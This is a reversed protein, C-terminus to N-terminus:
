SAAPHEAVWRELERRLAAADTTRVLALAQEIEALAAKRDKPWRAAALEFRARAQVLGPTNARLTVARQAAAEADALRGTIRYFRALEVLAEALMPSARGRAEERLALARRLTTEAADVQDAAHECRALAFLGFALEARGTRLGTSARDLREIVAIAETCRGTAAQVFGRAALATRTLIHTPPLEKDAIAVARASITDAEALEGRTALV